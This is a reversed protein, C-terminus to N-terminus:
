PLHLCFGRARPQPICAQTAHIVHKGQCIACMNLLPERCAPTSHARLHPFRPPFIPFHTSAYTNLSFFRLPAPSLAWEGLKGLTQATDGADCSVPHPQAQLFLETTFLVAQEDLPCLNSKCCRCPLQCIDLLEYGPSRIGRRTDESGLCRLLICVCM